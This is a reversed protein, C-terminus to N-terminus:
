DCASLLVSVGNEFLVSFQSSIYSNKCGKGPKMMESFPHSLIEPVSAALYVQLQLYIIAIM